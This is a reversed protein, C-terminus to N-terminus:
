VVESVISEFDNTFPIFSYKKDLEKECADIFTIFESKQKEMIRYFVRESVGMYETAEQRSIEGILYKYAVRHKKAWEGIKRQLEKYYKIETLPYTEGAFIKLYAIRETIYNIYSALGITVKRGM